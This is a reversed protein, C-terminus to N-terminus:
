VSKTYSCLKYLKGNEEITFNYKENYQIENFDKLSVEVLKPTLKSTIKIFYHIESPNKSNVDYVAYYKQEITSSIEINSKNHKNIIGTIIITVIITVIFFKKM